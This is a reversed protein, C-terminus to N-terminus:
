VSQIVRLAEDSGSRKLGTSFQIITLVSKLPYGDSAAPDRTKDYIIIDPALSRQGQENVLHGSGIGYSGPLQDRLQGRIRELAAEWALADADRPMALFASRALKVIGPQHKHIDTM